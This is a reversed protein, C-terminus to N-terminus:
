LAMLVVAGAAAALALAGLRGPREKWVLVGLLSVAVITASDRLPFAIVGPVTELSKLLFGNGVVNGV